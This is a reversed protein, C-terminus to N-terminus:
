PSLSSDQSVPPQTCQHAGTSERPQYAANRFHEKSGSCLSLSYWPGAKQEKQTQKKKVRFLKKWILLFFYLNAQSPYPHNVPRVHRRGSGIFQSLSLCM